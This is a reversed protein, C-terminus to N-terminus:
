CKFRNIAYICAGEPSGFKKRVISLEPVKESIRIAVSRSFDLDKELISGSFALEPFFIGPMKSYVCQCLEALSEAARELIKGAVPDPSSTDRAADFVQPAFSAIRAKDFDTYLFSFLQRINSIGYYSYAAELLKESGPGGCFPMRDAFCAAARLGQLGIDFGSGGDSLFHGLGGARVTKGDRQMGCAISGTGSILLFGQSKGLAGTLAAYADNLFYVTDPRLVCKEGTSNERKKIMQCFFDAFFRKEEDTELGASAFCGACCDFISYSSKKELESFLDALNQLVTEKKCGYINTPGGSVSFLAEGTETMLFLKCHTGGGDIGFFTKM